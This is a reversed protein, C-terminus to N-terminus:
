RRLRAGSNVEAGAVPSANTCGLMYFNPDNPDAYWRADSDTCSGVEEWIWSAHVFGSYGGGSATLGSTKKTLKKVKAELDEIRNKMNKDNHHASVPVVALLLAGAILGALFLVIKPKSAVNDM